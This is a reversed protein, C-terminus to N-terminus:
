GHTAETLIPTTVSPIYFKEHITNWFNIPDPDLEIMPAPNNLHPSRIGAIWISNTETWAVIRAKKDFGSTVSQRTLRVTSPFRGAISGITKSGVTLPGGILTKAGAEMAERYGEWCLVIIHLPQQFLFTILRDVAGQAAGYDGQMAITQHDKAGKVGMTIHSGQSFSGQDSIQALIQQSTFSLTDWVLTRVKSYRRVWDERAFLFADGRVDHLGTKPDPASIITHIRSRYHPLVSDLREAGPDAALYAIEGYPDEPLSLALRTKGVKPASYILWRELDTRSAVPEILPV